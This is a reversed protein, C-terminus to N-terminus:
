ERWSCKFNEDANLFLELNRVCVEYFRETRGGGWYIIWAPRDEVVEFTLLKTFEETRKFFNIHFSWRPLKTVYYGALLKQTFRINSEPQGKLWQWGHSDAVSTKVVFFLPAWRFYATSLRSCGKQKTDMLRGDGTIGGHDYFSCM